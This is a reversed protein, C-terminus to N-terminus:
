FWTEMITGNSILITVCEACSEVMVSNDILKIGMQTLNASKVKTVDDLWLARKRIFSM